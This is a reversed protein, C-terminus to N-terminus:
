LLFRSQATLSFATGEHFGGGLRSGHFDGGGRPKGKHMYRFAWSKGINFAPISPDSPQTRGIRTWCASLSWRWKETPRCKREKPM